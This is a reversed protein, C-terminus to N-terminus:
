LKSIPNFHLRISRWLYLLVFSFKFELHLNCVYSTLILVKKERYSLDCLVFCLLVIRVSQGSCLRSDSESKQWIVFMYIYISSTDVLAFHQWCSTGSPLSLHKSSIVSFALEVGNLVLDVLRECDRRGGQLDYYFWLPPAYGLFECKKGFNTMVCCRFNPM